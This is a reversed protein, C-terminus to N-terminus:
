RYGQQSLVNQAGSLERGLQEALNAARTLHDVAEAVRQVPDAGDDEYVEFENLSRGLNSALQNCTQPLRQGVAQLNGLVRYVVPAPQTMSITLHNIQRIAEAAAEAHDVLSEATEDTSM